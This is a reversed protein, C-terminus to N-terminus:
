IKKNIYLIYKPVPLLWGEQSKMIFYKIGKKKHQKKIEKAKEKAEKYTNNQNYYYYKKKNETGDGLMIETPIGM